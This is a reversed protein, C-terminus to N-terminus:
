IAITALGLRPHTVPAAGLQWTPMQVSACGALPAFKFKLNLKLNFKLSLLEVELQVESDLQSRTLKVGPRINVESASELGAVPLAAAVQAELELQFAIRSPSSSPSPTVAEPQALKLNFRLSGSPGATVPVTGSVTM